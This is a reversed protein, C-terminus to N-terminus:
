YSSRLGRRLMDALDDRDGNAAEARCVTCYGDRLIPRGDFTEAGIAFTEGCGVCKERVFSRSSERARHKHDANFRLMRASLDTSM